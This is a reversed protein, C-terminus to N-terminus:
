CMWGLVARREPAPPASYARILKTQLQLSADTIFVRDAVWTTSVTSFPRDKRDLVTVTHTKSNFHAWAAAAEDPAFAASDFVIKPLGKM